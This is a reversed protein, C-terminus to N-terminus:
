ILSSYINELNTEQSLLDLQALAYKQGQTGIRERLTSDASVNLIANCLAEIDNEPVLIGSEGNEIIEPIGAHFTSIIPLGAAMAEVIAGPIGEKDADKNTISPHIFVDATKLYNIHQESAYPIKDIVSVYDQMEHRKIFNVISLYMVGSGVITLKIKPNMSFAKRFAALLFLHGKKPTLGTIMLYSVLDSNARQYLHQNYFKILPVGHYHVKIKEKACGLRLLDDEMDKSMALIINAHRFIRRRLYYKGLGWFRQPFSSCDYGYFSVVKPKSISKLLPLYIGADTGFHFHLVDADKVFESIKKSANWDILKTLKFKIKSFFTESKSLDLKDFKDNTLESFGGGVDTRIRYVVQPEYKVHNLIQNQIFSAKLQSSKRIFHIVKFTNVTNIQHMARTNLQTHNIGIWLRNFLKNSTDRAEKFTQFKLLWSLIDLIYVIPWLVVATFKTM